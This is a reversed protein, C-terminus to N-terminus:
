ENNGEMPIIGKGRLESYFYTVAGWPSVANKKNSKLVKMLDLYRVDHEFIMRPITNSRKREGNTCKCASIIGHTWTGRKDKYIGPVLGTSDCFWCEEEPENQAREMLHERSLSYLRSLKPLSADEGLCFAIVREVIEVDTNDAWKRYLKERQENQRGPFAGFLDKLADSKISM